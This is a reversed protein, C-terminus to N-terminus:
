SVRIVLDEQRDSSNDQSVWNPNGSNEGRNTVKAAAGISRSNGPGVVECGKSLVVCARKPDMEDEPEMTMTKGKDGHVPESVHRGNIHIKSSVKCPLLGVMVIHEDTQKPRRSSEQGDCLVDAHNVRHDSNGSGSRNTFWPNQRIGPERYTSHQAMRRWPEGGNRTEQLDSRNQAEFFRDRKIWRAVRYM